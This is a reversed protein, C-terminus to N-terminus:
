MKVLHCVMHQTTPTDHLERLVVNQEEKMPKLGSVQLKYKSWYM